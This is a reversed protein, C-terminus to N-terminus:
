DNGARQPGNQQASGPQEAQALLEPALGLAVETFAQRQRLVRRRQHRQRSEGLGDAVLGARGLLIALGGDPEALQMRKRGLRTTRQQALM